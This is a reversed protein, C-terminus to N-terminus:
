SWNHGEASRHEGTHVFKAQRTAIQNANVQNHFREEWGAIKEFRGIEFVRNRILSPNFTFIPRSNMWKYTLSGDESQIFGYTHKFLTSNSPKWYTEDIECLKKVEEEQFWFHESFVIQDLDADNEFTQIHKNLEMSTLSRWDEEIFLTYDATKSLNELFKFKNVYAYRERSDNFTILTGKNPFHNQIMLEIQNREYLKSRDDLIYVHNILENINKNHSILSNLTDEFLDIRGSTSFVLNVM